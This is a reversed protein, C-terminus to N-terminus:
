VVLRWSRCWMDFASPDFSATDSRVLQLWATDPNRRRQVVYHTRDFRIRVLPVGAADPYFWGDEDQSFAAHVIHPIEASRHTRTM